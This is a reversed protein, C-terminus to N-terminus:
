SDLWAEVAAPDSLDPLSGPGKYILVILEPWSPVRQIFRDVDEDSIPGVFILQDGDRLGRLEEPRAVYRWEKGPPCGMYQQAARVTGHLYKM